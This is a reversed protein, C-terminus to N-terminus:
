RCPMGWPGVAAFVLAMLIGSAPIAQPTGSFGKPPKLDKFGSKADLRDLVNAIWGTASIGDFNLESPTTGEAGLKMMLIDRFVAKKGGRKKM